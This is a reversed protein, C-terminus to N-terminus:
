RLNFVFVGQFVKAKGYLGADPKIENLVRTSPSKQFSGIIDLAIMMGGAAIDTDSNVINEIVGLLLEVNHHQTVRLDGHQVEGSTLLVKLHIFGSQDVLELGHVHDRTVPVNEGLFNMAHARSNMADKQVSELGISLVRRECHLFKFQSIHHHGRPM